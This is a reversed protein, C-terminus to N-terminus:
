NQGVCKRSTHISETVVGVSLLKTNYTTAIQVIESENETLSGDERRLQKIGVASWKLAVLSFFMKNVRDGVQTWKSACAQYQFQLINDEINRLEWIANHLANATWECFPDREQFHHFLTLACHMNIFKQTYRERKWNAWSILFRSIHLIALAM